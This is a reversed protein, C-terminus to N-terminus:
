GQNNVCIVATHECKNYGSINIINKHLEARMATTIDYERYKVTYDEERGAM